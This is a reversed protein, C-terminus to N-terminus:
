QLRLPRVRVCSSQSRLSGLFQRATVRRRSLHAFRESMRTVLSARATRKLTKAVDALRQRSGELSSAFLRPLRSQVQSIVCYESASVSRVGVSRLVYKPAQDASNRAQVSRLLRQALIRKPPVCCATRSAQLSYETM